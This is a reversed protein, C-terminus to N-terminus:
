HLTVSQGDALGEPPATVVQDGAALGARISVREGENAGLRVLRLHAAGDKVVFVADLQGRHVVSESPVMLMSEGPIAITVRGFQGSQVGKVGAPLALKVQVSRSVPDAAPKVEVVTAEDDLGAASIQMRQRSGMAVSAALSEPIEVVLQLSTPDEIDIVPRGPALLDGVDVLKSVVVGAFPACIKTYGVMVDAEAVAAEAASQGEMTAAINAEAAAVRAQAASARAEAADAEAQTMANNKLMQQARKLDAEALKLQAAAEAAGAKAGAIASKAGAAAAQAQRRKAEIEKADLEVLVAGAAVAEGPTATIHGVVGPIRAMLTAARAARVTGPLAQTPRHDVLAASTVSVAMSPAPAAKQSTPPEGCGALLLALTATSISLASKM